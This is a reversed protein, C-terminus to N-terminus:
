LRVARDGREIRGIVKARLQKAVAVTDNPSVIAAMGIGMNFVQYMEDRDVGGREQLIQFIAPVKW